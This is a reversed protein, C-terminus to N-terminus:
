LYDKRFMSAPPIGQLVVGLLGAIKEVSEQSAKDFRKVLATFRAQEGFAAWGAPEEIM